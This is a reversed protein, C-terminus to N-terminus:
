VSFSDDAIGDLIYNGIIEASNIQKNKENQEVKGM